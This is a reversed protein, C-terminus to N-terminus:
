KIRNNSFLCTSPNQVFSYWLARLLVKLSILPHNLPIRITSSMQACAETEHVCPVAPLDSVNQSHHPFSMSDVHQIFTSLKM